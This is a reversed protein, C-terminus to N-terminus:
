INVEFSTFCFEFGIWRRESNANGNFKYTDFCFDCMSLDFRTYIPAYFINSM